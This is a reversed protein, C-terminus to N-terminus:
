ELGAIPNEGKTRKAYDQILKDDVVKFMDPVKAADVVRARWITRTSNGQLIPIEAAVPKAVVLTAATLSEEAREESELVVTRAQGTLINAQAENGNAREAAAKQRLEAAERDAKEREAKAIAELREREKRAEDEAQKRAEDAIRKQELEYTIQMRKGVTESEKCFKLAEAYFADVDQGGRLYPDKDEKRQAELENWKAKADRVFKDVKEYEFLSRITLTPIVAQITKAQEVFSKGATSIEITITM